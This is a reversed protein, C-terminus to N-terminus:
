KNDKVYKCLMELQFSDLETNLLNKTMGQIGNVPTRLEHTINSVFETKYKLESKLEEKCAKLERAMNRTETQDIAFVIFKDDEFRIIKVDAPFCTENKRYVDAEVHELLSTEELIINPFISEFKGMDEDQLYGLSERAKNSCNIYRGDDGFVFILELCEEKLTNYLEMNVNM